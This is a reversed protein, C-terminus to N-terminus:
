LLSKGSRRFKVNMGEDKLKMLKNRSDSSLAFEEENYYMAVTISRLTGNRWRDEIIHGFSPGFIGYDTDIYDEVELSLSLSQLRPVLVHESSRLRDFLSAIAWVSDDTHTIYFDLVLTTLDPSAELIHILNDSVSCLVLKLSSLNCASRVVLDYLSSIEEHIDLYMSRDGLEMNTLGPLTLSRLFTGDSTSFRTIGPHMVVHPTLASEPCRHKVSFNKLHPSTSIINLFYQHLTLDGPILLRDDTYSALNPVREPNLM